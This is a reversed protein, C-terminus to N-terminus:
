SFPSYIDTDCGPPSGTIGRQKTHASYTEHLNKPILHPLGTFVDATFLLILNTKKIGRYFYDLLTRIICICLAEKM